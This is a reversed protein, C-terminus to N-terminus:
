EEVIKAAQTGIRSFLETLRSVGARDLRSAQVKATAENM